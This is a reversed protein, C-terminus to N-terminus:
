AACDGTGKNLPYFKNVEELFDENFGVIDIIDFIDEETLDPRQKLVVEAITERITLIFV